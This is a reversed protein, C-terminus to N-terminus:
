AHVIMVPARSSRSVKEAVSGFAWRSPGSRGHSAMIVLGIDNNNIYDVIMSGADGLLGVVEVNQLGADRLMKEVDDLYLSCQRSAIYNLNKVHEEWTEPRDSPFDATINIPTCVRLLIVKKVKCDKAIKIVHPVVCEALKSGDLPVLIKEYM